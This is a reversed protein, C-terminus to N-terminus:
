RRMSRRGRRSKGKKNTSKGKKGKGKKGKYGGGNNNFARMAHMEDATLLNDSHNSVYAPSQGSRKYNCREAVREMVNVLRDRQTYIGAALGTVGTATLLTGLISSTDEPSKIAESVVKYMYTSDDSGTREITVPTGDMTTKFPFTSNETPKPNLRSLIDSEYVVSPVESGNSVILNEIKGSDAAADNLDSRTINELM